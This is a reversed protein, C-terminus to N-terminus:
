LSTYCVTKVKDATNRGAAGRNGMKLKTPPRSVIPMSTRFTKMAKWFLLAVAHEMGAMPDVKLGFANAYFASVVTVEM